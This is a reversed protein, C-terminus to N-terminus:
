IAMSAVKQQCGYVLHRYVDKLASLAAVLDSGHHPNAAIVRDVLAACARDLRRVELWDQQALAQVLAQQIQHLQDVGAGDQYDPGTLLSLAM